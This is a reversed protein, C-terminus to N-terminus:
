ETGCAALYIAEPVDSQAPPVACIEDISTPIWFQGEARLFFATTVVTGSTDVSAEAYAWGDECNLSELAVFTAGPYATDVEVQVASGVAAETCEATGGIPSPSETPAADGGGSCAALAGVLAGVLAIAAGTAARGRLRNWPAPAM